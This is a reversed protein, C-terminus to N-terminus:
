GQEGQTSREAREEDHKVSFFLPGFWWVKHWYGKSPQNLGDSGMFSLLRNNETWRGVRLTFSKHQFYNM